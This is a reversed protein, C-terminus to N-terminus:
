EDGGIQVRYGIRSVIGFFPPLFFLLLLALDPVPPAAELTGSTLFMMHPLGGVVASCHQYTYLLGACLSSSRNNYPSPSLVPFVASFAAADGVSDAGPVRECPPVSVRAAGATAFSPGELADLAGSDCIADVASRSALTGAAFSRLAGDATPCLLFSSTARGTRSFPVDCGGRLHRRRLQRRQCSYGMYLL